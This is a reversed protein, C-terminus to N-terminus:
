PEFTGAIGNTVKPLKSRRELRPKVFPRREPKAVTTRDRCDRIRNEENM